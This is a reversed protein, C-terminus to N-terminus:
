TLPGPGCSSSAPSRCKRCAVWWVFRGSPAVDASRAVLRLGKRRRRIGRCPRRPPPGPCQRLPARLRAFRVGAGHAGGEPLPARVRRLAGAARRRPVAAAVSRSRAARGADVEAARRQRVARGAHRLAALARALAAARRADVFRPSGSLLRPRDRRRGGRGRRRCRGRACVGCIKIRTRQNMGDRRRLRESPEPCGTAAASRRSECPGSRLVASSTSATPPLTPAARRPRAVGARRRALGAHAAAASRSWAAWSTACWTTCSRTPTSTSAGTPAAARRHRALAADQVPSPRRASPRGSRASTTSASSCAGRGAADGRRRASPVVLRRPRGRAGPAGAVRAAPLRLAPRPAPARMSADRCRRPVVAGRHGGAPLPQHGRVWSHARARRRHRLPRGSEACARRRRHPRRLRRPAARRSRPSRRELRDQM